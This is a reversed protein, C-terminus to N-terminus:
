SLISGQEGPCSPHPGLKDAVRGRVYSFLRTLEYAKQGSPDRMGCTAASALRSWVDVAKVCLAPSIHVTLCFGM